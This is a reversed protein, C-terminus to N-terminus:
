LHKELEPAKELAVDVMKELEARTIAGRGRKQMTCLKGGCVGITLRADYTHDEDLSPDLLLHGGIKVFTCEVANGSPNLPRGKSDRDLKGDRYEPISANRLASMSALMAADFYNGDYDLVYIDIYLGYVKGEEIFLSKMDLIESSRVARDVVRALEIANEDPPGPEFRPSAMPLLGRHQRRQWLCRLGRGLYGM